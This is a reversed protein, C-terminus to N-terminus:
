LVTIMPTMRVVFLREARGMISGIRQNQWSGDGRNGDGCRCGVIIVQSHRTM